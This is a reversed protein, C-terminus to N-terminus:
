PVERGRINTPLTATSKTSRLHTRDSIMSVSEADLGSATAQAVKVVEMM